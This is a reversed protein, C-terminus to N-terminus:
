RGEQERYRLTTKKKTVSSGDSLVVNGSRCKAASASQFATLLLQRLELGYAKRNDRSPQVVRFVDRAWDFVLQASQINTAFREETAANWTPSDKEGRWMRHFFEGYGPETRVVALRGQTGRAADLKERITRDSYPKTRAPIRQDLQGSRQQVFVGHDPGANSITSEEECRPTM